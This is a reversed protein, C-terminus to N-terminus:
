ADGEEDLRSGTLKLYVDELNPARQIRVGPRIEDEVPSTGMERAILEQPPACALIRGRHIIAVRDCLREAEDMYHTSLLIALGKEREQSLIDWLSRRAEPDLGTTPEDLILVRPRNIMARAVQLRRRMGGSLEEVLDQSKNELGFRVLLERARAVAEARKVGFFAAFQVMQDLANFDTDLNDEQACVGLVKRAQKPDRHVDVGLIEVSGTSPEYFGTICKMSTSKGAGNPGLLGFCEGSKVEFSVGDVAILPERGRRVYSKRLDRVVLPIPGVPAKLNTM